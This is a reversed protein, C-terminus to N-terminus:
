SALLWRPSAAHAQTRRLGLGDCQVRRPRCFVNQTPQEVDATWRTLNDAALFSWMFASRHQLYAVPHRLIAQRWAESIASTGFLGEEREVKRMVFDCPELRWYIDWLTPQYCNNLLM